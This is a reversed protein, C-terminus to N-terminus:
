LLARPCSTETGLTDTQSVLSKCIQPKSSCGTSALQCIWICVIVSSMSVQWQWMDRASKLCRFKGLNKKHQYQIDISNWNRLVSSVAIESLSPKYNHSVCHLTHPHIPSMDQRVLVRLGPLIGRQKQFVSPLLISGEMEKTRIHFRWYEAWMFANMSQYSIM